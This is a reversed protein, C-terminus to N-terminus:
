LIIHFYYSSTQSFRACKRDRWVTLGDEDTTHCIYWEGTDEDYAFNVRGGGLIGLEISMTKSLYVTGKSDMNVTRKGQYVIQQPRSDERNYTM